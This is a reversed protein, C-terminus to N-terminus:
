EITGQDEGEESSKGTEELERMVERGLQELGFKAIASIRFVPGQWQLKKLLADCKEDVEDEALLDIKNIVLWRPKGALDPSFKELERSIASFEDASDINSDIPAIDM